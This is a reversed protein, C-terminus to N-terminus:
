TGGLWYALWLVSNAILGGIVLASLGFFIRAVIRSPNSRTRSLSGFSETLLIFFLAIHGLVMAGYLMARSDMFVSAFMAALAVLFAGLLLPRCRILAEM